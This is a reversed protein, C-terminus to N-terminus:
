SMLVVAKKMGVAAADALAAACTKYTKVCTRRAYTMCDSYGDARPFELVWAAKQDDALRIIADAIFGANVHASVVTRDFVM